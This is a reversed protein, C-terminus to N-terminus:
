SGKTALLRRTHRAIMLDEDTKIVRVTVRSQDTSIVDAGRQNREDDLTVGLFALGDCIRGRVAASNEGIGATFVLTELGGLAAAYAGIFKRAQYCFLEVAEAARPDAASRSLLERMDASAGSVGLLGSEHNVLKALTEATYGRAQLLYVLAGPDLDGTRTSMVLGGTPTFGMSTDIGVGREVAAMSAGNGLHAIVARGGVHAPDLARLQEVIYEYSLGHFGYRVVGAEALARPLPLLKARPPLTRHFGTDFCAFQPPDPLLLQIGQITAIARPLHNPALPVCAQLDAMLQADIPGPALHKPGGHVIRHGVARIRELQGNRKLWLCMGSLAAGFDKLAQDAPSLDVGGAGRVRLRWTAPATQEAFFNVIPPADRVLTVTVPASADALPYVGGKLSSSGTNITLILGDDM